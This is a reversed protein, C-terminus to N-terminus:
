SAPGSAESARSEKLKEKGSKTVLIIVGGDEDEEM